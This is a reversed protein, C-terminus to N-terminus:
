TDNTGNKVSNEFLNLGTDDLLTAKTKTTNISKSSELYDLRARKASKRRAAKFCILLILLTYKM